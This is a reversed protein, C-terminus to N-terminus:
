TSHRQGGNNLEIGGRRRAGAFHSRGLSSRVRARALRQLEEAAADDQTLDASAVYSLSWLDNPGPGAGGLVLLDTGSELHRVEPTYTRRLLHIAFALNLAVVLLCVLAAWEALVVSWFVARLGIALKSPRM